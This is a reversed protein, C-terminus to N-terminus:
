IDPRAMSSAVRQATARPQLRLAVGPAPTDSVHVLANGRHVVRPELKSLGNIVRYVASENGPILSSALM